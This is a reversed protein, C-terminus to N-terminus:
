NSHQKFAKIFLVFLCYLLLFAIPFVFKAKGSVGDRDLVNLSTSTDKVVKQFNIRSIQLIAKESILEDKRKIIESLETNENYVLSGGVNARGSSFSNLIGDIQKIISDNARLKVDLSKLQEKQIIDYYANDNFFTVIPSVLKKYDTKDKTSMLVRHTPYNKSTVNDEVVKSISGDEAMLKILEFNTERQHVFDYVSNIPSIKISLLKKPESIGLSKIFATDNEKIKSNLLEVKSYLYDVSGFNPMVIIQHNYIKVKKDVFYGIVAGAAIILLIVALNRRIFFLAKFINDSMKSFSGKLKEKVQLLDIEKDANNPQQAM